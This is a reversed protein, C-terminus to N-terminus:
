ERQQRSGAAQKIDRLSEAMETIWPGGGDFPQVVRPLDHRADPLAVQLVREGQWDIVMRLEGDTAFTYGFGLGGAECYYTDPGSLENHLLRALAVAVDAAPAIVNFYNEGAMEMAVPTQAPPLM